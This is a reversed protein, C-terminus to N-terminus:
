KKSQVASNGSGPTEQLQALSEPVALLTFNRARDWAASFDKISVSLPGIAPDIVLLQGQKLDCGVVVDYHSNHGDKSTIMVVLPRGKNLQYYLGTPGESSLTGPFVVAEDEGARLVTVLDSGKLGAGSAAATRLWDKQTENLKQGYFNEVMEIAALGCLNPSVQKIWAVELKAQPLNQTPTPTQAGCPLTSLKMLWVLTMLYFAFRINM